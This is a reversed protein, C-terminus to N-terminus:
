CILDIYARDVLDAKDIELRSMLELAVQIGDAQNQGDVLVVELEVFRGIDVVDDLHIRTQGVRFLRREKKVIGRVGLAEGLVSQLCSPTSTPSVTYRSPRPGSGSAREYYILEGADEALIRLKLRGKAVGFFVDEQYILEPSQGALQEALDLKRHWDRVHAKIEINTRM